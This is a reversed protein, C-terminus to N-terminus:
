ENIHFDLIRGAVRKGDSFLTIHAKYNGDPLPASIKIVNDGPILEITKIILHEEEQHLGSVEYILIQVLIEDMAAGNIRILFASEEYTIDGIGTTMCGASLLCLMVIGCLLYGISKM